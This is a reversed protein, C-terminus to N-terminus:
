KRLPHILINHKPIFLIAFLIKLATVSYKCDDAVLSFFVFTFLIFYYCCFNSHYSHRWIHAHNMQSESTETSKIETLRKTHMRAIVTYIICPYYFRYDIRFLTFTIYGGSHSNLLYTRMWSLELITAIKRVFFILTCIM